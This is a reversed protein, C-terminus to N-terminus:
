CNQNERTSQNRAALRDATRELMDATKGLADATAHLADGTEQLEKLRQKDSKYEAM